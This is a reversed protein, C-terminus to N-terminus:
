RQWTEHSLAHRHRQMVARRLEHVDSPTPAHKLVESAEVMDLIKDNASEVVRTVLGCAIVFMVVGSVALWKDLHDLWPAPRIETM